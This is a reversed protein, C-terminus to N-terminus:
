RLNASNERIMQLNNNKENKSTPERSTTCRPGFRPRLARWNSRHRQPLLAARAMGPQANRGRQGNETRDGGSARTRQQANGRHRIRSQLAVVVVFPDGHCEQKRAGGGPASGAPVLAAAAASRCAASWRWSPRSPWAVVPLRDNISDRPARAPGSASCLPGPAPWACALRLRTPSFLRGIRAANTIACSATFSFPGFRQGKELRSGTPM